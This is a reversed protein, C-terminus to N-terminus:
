ILLFKARYDLRNMAVIAPELLIRMRGVELSLVRMIPWEDASPISVSFSNGRPRIAANLPAREKAYSVTM